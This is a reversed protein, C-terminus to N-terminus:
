SFYLPKIPSIKKKKFDRTSFIIFEKNLGILNDISLWRERQIDQELYFCLFENRTPFISLQAHLDKLSNANLTLEGNTNLKFPHLQIMKSVQRFLLDTFSEHDRPLLSITKSISSLVNENLVQRSSNFETIFKPISPSIIIEFDLKFVFDEERNFTSFEIIKFLPDKLIMELQSFDGEINSPLSHLSELLKVIEKPSQASMERVIESLCHKYSIDRNFNKSYSSEVSQFIQMLSKISNKEIKIKEMKILDSASKISDDGFSNILITGLLSNRRKTFHISNCDILSGGITANELILSKHICGNFSFSFYQLIFDKLHNKKKLYYKLTALSDTSEFTRDCMSVRPSTRNRLAIVPTDNQIKTISKEVGIGIIRESGLHTSYHVVNSILFEYVAEILYMGGWAHYYDLRTAVNNRGCGKLEIGNLLINRGAGLNTRESDGSFVEVAAIIKDYYFDEFEKKDLVFDRNDRVTNLFINEIPLKYEQPKTKIIKFFDLYRNSPYDKIKELQYLFNNNLNILPIFQMDLCIFRYDKRKAVIPTYSHHGLLNM